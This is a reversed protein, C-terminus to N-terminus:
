RAGALITQLEANEAKVEALSSAEHFKQFEIGMPFTEAKVPRGSIIIRGM